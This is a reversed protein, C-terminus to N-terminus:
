ALPVCIKTYFVCFFIIKGYFHVVPEELKYGTKVYLRCIKGTKNMVIVEIGLNYM